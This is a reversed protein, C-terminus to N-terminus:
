WLGGIRTVSGTWGAKPDAHLLIKLAESIPRQM